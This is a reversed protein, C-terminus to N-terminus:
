GTSLSFVPVVQLLVSAIRKSAWSYRSGAPFRRRDVESGLVGPAWTTPWFASAPELVPEPELYGPGHPRATTESPAGKQCGSWSRGITEVRRLSFSIAIRPWQRAGSRISAGIPTVM